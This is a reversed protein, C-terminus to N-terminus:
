FKEIKIRRHSLQRSYVLLQVYGRDFQFYKCYVFLGQSAYVIRTM